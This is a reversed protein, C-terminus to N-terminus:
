VTDKVDVRVVRSNSVVTDAIKRVSEVDFDWLPKGLAQANAVMMLDINKSDETVARDYSLFFFLAFLPAVLLLLAACVILIFRKEVSHAYM